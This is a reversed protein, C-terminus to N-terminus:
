TPHKTKACIHTDAQIAAKNCVKNQTTRKLQTLISMAQPCKSIQYVKTSGSKTWLWWQLKSFQRNCLHSLQRLLRLAVTNQDQVTFYLALWSRVWTSNGLSLGPWINIIAIVARIFCMVLSFMHWLPITGPYAFDSPWVKFQIGSVTWLLSPTISFTVLVIGPQLTGSPM